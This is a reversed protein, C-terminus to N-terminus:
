PSSSSIPNWIHWMINMNLPNKFMELWHKYGTTHPYQLGINIEGLIQKIYYLQIYIQVDKLHDIKNLNVNMTHNFYFNKVDKYSKIREYQILKNYRIIYVMIYVKNENSSISSQIINELNLNRLEILRIHLCCPDDNNSHSNSNNNIINNDNSNNNNNNYQLGICIEGLDSLNSTYLKLMETFRYEQNFYLNTNINNLLIDLYGICKDQGISDNIYLEISLNIEVLKSQIIHFNFSENWIPKFGNVYHTTRQQDDLLIWYQHDNDWIFLTIIIYTYYNTLELPFKLNDANMIKITLINSITCYNLSYNLIGQITYIQNSKFSQFYKEGKNMSIFTSPKNFSILKYCISIIVYSTMTLLLFGFLICCILLFIALSINEVHFFNLLDM